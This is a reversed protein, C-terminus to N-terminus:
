GIAARDGDLVLRFFPAPAGGFRAGPPGAARSPEVGGSDWLDVFSAVELDATVWWCYAQSPEARPNGAVLGTGNLPRWPGDMREAVMGYLGTVGAAAAPAFRRAQTSWFLYYRGGHAVVHPRELESNVGVAGVLPPGLRWGERELRASGIVGDDVADLWGASGTFLLWERGDAPDRFWGPDRFGKIRGAVARAQDAPRYRREDAAVVEWPRSWGDVRPRDGDIAFRGTCAFLRQEFTPVGQRGAATFFLTLMTGDDDLVASGSWERSGPTWGDPFAPGYDRWGDAGHTTLRIRAVDHRADPDDARPAALFFWFSRGGRVVTAGRRDALQWMDWVVQGPRIPRVDGRRLVPLEWGRQRAIGAVQAATWEAPGPGVPSM